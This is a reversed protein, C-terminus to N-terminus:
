QFARGLVPNSPSSLGAIDKVPVRIDEGLLPQMVPQEPSEFVDPRIDRLNRAARGEAHKVTNAVLQLETVKQWSKFSQVDLRKCLQEESFSKLPNLGESGFSCPHWPDLQTHFRLIQQEFAHYLAVAFLNIMGQRVGSLVSYLHIGVDLAQEAYDAPDSFETAPPSSMFENWAKM